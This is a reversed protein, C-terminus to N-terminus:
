KIKKKYHEEMEKYKKQWIQQLEKPIPKLPDGETWLKAHVSAVGAKVDDINPLVINWGHHLRGWPMNGDQRHAYNLLNQEPYTTDFRGKLRFLSKYYKLLKNSPALLFFGANFYSMPVPPYDHIVHTVESTTAFVYEDPLPGEDAKFKTKHLTRRPHAVREKFVGDLPKFLFTDADLFLIRDFDEFEFVRLKAMVDQWRPAGPTIWNSDFKEVPVITAGEESLQKRKWQHVGPTVLVLFPISMRTRTKEDHQLQYNLLQISRFYVDDTNAKGSDEVLLTAYAFELTPGRWWEFLISLLRYPAVIFLLVFIIIKFLRSSSIPQSPHRMKLTSKKKLILGAM